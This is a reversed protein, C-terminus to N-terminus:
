FTRRRSRPVGKLGRSFWVKTAKDDHFEIICEEWAEASYYMLLTKAGDHHENDTPGYRARITGVPQGLIQGEPFAEHFRRIESRNRVVGVTVYVVPVLLAITTLAAVVYRTLRMWRPEPDDRKEHDLSPM